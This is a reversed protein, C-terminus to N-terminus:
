KLFITLVNLIVLITVGVDALVALIITSLGFISLILITIKVTLAFVISQFVKRKTLTAIDIARKIKSIDDQMIIIDSAEIAADSGVNGMSVGIDANKLVPADNIGDGIFLTPAKKQYEKVIRVKDEPMLNSYYQKIGMFKAIEKTNKENDGSVIAYEKKLINTIKKSNEKM